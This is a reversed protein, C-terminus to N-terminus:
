TIKLLGDGDVRITTEFSKSDLVSIGGSVLWERFTGSGSPARVTHTSHLGLTRMKNTFNKGDVTIKLRQPDPSEFKVERTYKRYFRAIILVYGLMAVADFITMIYKQTENATLGAVGFLLIMILLGLGIAVARIRYGQGPIFEFYMGYLSGFIIAFVAVVFVILPIDATVISSFCDQPTVSTGNCLPNTSLQQLISGRSAELLLVNFAGIAGAYYVGGLIGAKAGALAAGL